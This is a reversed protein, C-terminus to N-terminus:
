VYIIGFWRGLRLWWPKLGPDDWPRVMLKQKRHYITGAEDGGIHLETQFTPADDIDVGVTDMFEAIGLTLVRLWYEHMKVARRTRAIKTDVTIPETNRDLGLPNTTVRVEVLEVSTTIGNVVLLTPLKDVLRRIAELGHGETLAKSDAVHVTIKPM